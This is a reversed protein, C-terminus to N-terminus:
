AAKAPQPEAEGCGFGPGVAGVPGGSIRVPIVAFEASWLTASCFRNTSFGPAVPYGTCLETFSLMSAQFLVELGTAIVLTVAEPPAVATKTSAAEGDAVGPVFNAM